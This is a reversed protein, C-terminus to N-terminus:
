GAKSLAKASPAPVKGFRRERGQYSVLAALLEERGFRQWPAESVYLEAYAMQWLLFGGVRPRGGTCILLDPDPEGRPHIYRELTKADLARASLGGRAVDAAIQRAAAVLEDRGRESNLRLCLGSPLDREIGERRLEACLEASACITLYPVRLEAVCQALERVAGAGDRRPGPLETLLIALHRPLRAPDLAAPWAGKRQSRSSTEVQAEM